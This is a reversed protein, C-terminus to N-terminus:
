KILTVHGRVEKQKGFSSVQVPKSSASPAGDLTVACSVPKHQRKGTPLGSAADRPAVVASSRSTAAPAAETTAPSAAVTCSGSSVGQLVFSGDANPTVSRKVGDCDLVVVCAGDSSAPAAAPSAAGLGTVLFLAGLGTAAASRWRSEFMRM